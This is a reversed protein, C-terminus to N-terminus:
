HFVSCLVYTFFTSRATKQSLNEFSLLLLPGGITIKKHKQSWASIWSTLNIFLLTKIASVCDSLTLEWILFAREICYFKVLM